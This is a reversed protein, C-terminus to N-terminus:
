FSTREKGEEDKNMKEDSREEDGSMGSENEKENKQKESENEDLFVKRAGFYNTPPDLCYIFDRPFLDDDLMEERSEPNIFIAADLPM